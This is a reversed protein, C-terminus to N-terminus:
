VQFVFLLANNYFFNFIFLTFPIGIILIFKVIENACTNRQIHFGDRLRRKWQDFRTTFVQQLEIQIIHANKGAEKVTVIDSGYEIIDATDIESSHIFRNNGLLQFRM